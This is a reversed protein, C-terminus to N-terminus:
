RSRSRDKREHCRRMWNRWAAYWDTRPDGRSRYYDAFKATEDELIHASFGRQESWLIDQDRLLFGDPFALSLTQSPSPPRARKEGMSEREEETSEEETSEEETSEEGRREEVLNNSSCNPVIQADDRVDRPSAHDRKRALRERSEARRAVLKGGYHHWDHIFSCGDVTEIFGFSHDSGCNCLADFLHGATGEWGMAMELDDPSFSQLDGDPAYDLCWWWLLHLHGIM